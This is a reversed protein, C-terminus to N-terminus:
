LSSKHEGYSCWGTSTRVFTFEDCYFGKPPRLKVIILSSDEIIIKEMKRPLPTSRLLLMRIKWIDSATVASTQSLIYPREAVWQGGVASATAPSINTFIQSLFPTPSLQVVPVNTLVFAAKVAGWCIAIGIGLLCIKLAIKM